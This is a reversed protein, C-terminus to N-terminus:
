RNVLAGHPRRRGLRPVGWRHRHTQAGADPCQRAQDGAGHASPRGDQSRNNRLHRQAGPSPRSGGASGDDRLEGVGAPHNRSQRGQQLRPADPSRLDAFDRLRGCLCPNGLDGAPSAASRHQGMADLGVRRYSSLQQGGAGPRLHLNPGSRIPHLPPGLTWGNPRDRDVRWRGRPGLHIRIRTRQGCRASRDIRAPRARRLPDCRHTGWGAVM